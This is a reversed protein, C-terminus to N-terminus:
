YFSVSNVFAVDKLSSLLPVECESRPVYGNCLVTFHPEAYSQSLKSSGWRQGSCEGSQRQQRDDGDSRIETCNDEVSGSEGKAETIGGESIEKDARRRRSSSRVREEETEEGREELGTM